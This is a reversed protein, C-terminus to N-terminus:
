QELKPVTTLVLQGGYEVRNIVVYIIGDEEYEDGIQLNRYEVM